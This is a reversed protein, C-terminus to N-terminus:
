ASAVGASLELASGSSAPSAETALPFPGSASSSSGALSRLKTAVDVRASGELVTLRRVATRKRLDLLTLGCFGGFLGM